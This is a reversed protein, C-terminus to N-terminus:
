RFRSFCFGLRSLATGVESVSGYFVLAILSFRCVEGFAEERNGQRM